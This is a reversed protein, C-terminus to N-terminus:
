VKISSEGEIYLKCENYGFCGEVIAFDFQDVLM